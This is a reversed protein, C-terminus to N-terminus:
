RVSSSLELYDNEGQFREQGHVSRHLQGDIGLTPGPDADAAEVAEISEAECDAWADDWGPPHQACASTLALLALALWDAKM